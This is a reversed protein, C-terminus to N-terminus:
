ALMCKRCVRWWLLAKNSHSKELKLMWCTETSYKLFVMLWEVVKFLHQYHLNQVILEFSSFLWLDGLEISTRSELVVFSDSCLSLSCEFIHFSCIHKKCNRENFPLLSEKWHTDLCALSLLSDSGEKLDKLM